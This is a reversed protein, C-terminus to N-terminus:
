LWGAVNAIGSAISGLDGVSSAANTSANNANNTGATTGVNGLTSTAQQGTNAVSTTAQQGSAQQSQLNSLYNQYSSAATNQGYTNLAKLTDGSNLLGAAAANDTIANSGQQLQNKYGTSNQYNQLAADSAATDGGNGIGLAGNLVNTAGTYSNQGTSALTNNAAVGTAGLQSETGQIANFGKDNNDASAKSSASNGFLGTIGSIIGSM